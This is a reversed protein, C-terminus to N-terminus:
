KLMLMNNSTLNNLTVNKWVTHDFEWTEEFLKRYAPM